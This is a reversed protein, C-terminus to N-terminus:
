PQTHATLHQPGMSGQRRNDVVKLINEGQAVQRYGTSYLLMSPIDCRHNPYLLSHSRDQQSASDRAPKASALRWPPLFWVAFFQPHGRTWLWCSTSARLRVVRWSSFGPFCNSLSSPFRDKGLGCWLHSWLGRQCKSCLGALSDSAPGGALDM